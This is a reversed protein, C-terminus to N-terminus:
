IALDPILPHLWTETIIMVRCDWIIPTNAMLLELKGGKPIISRVNTLFISRLLPKYPKNKSCILLGGRCCHKQRQEM